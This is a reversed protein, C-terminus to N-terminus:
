LFTDGILSKTKLLDTWQHQKQKWWLFIECLKQQLLSIFIDIKSCTCPEFVQSLKTWEDFDFNRFFALNICSITPKYRLGTLKCQVFIGEKSLFFHRVGLIVISPYTSMLSHMNQTHTHKRRLKKKTERKLSFHSGNKERLFVWFAGSQM